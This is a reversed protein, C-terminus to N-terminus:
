SRRRAKAEIILRSMRELEDEPIGGADLELLSAVANEISGSFFTKILHRLASRRARDASVSPLFVYRKGLRRHKLRGKEELIRLLARVASYSPPEQMSRRVEEVSASGLRYLIDMIERERRTLQLADAPM